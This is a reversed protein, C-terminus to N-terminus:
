QGGNGDGDAHGANERGLHRRRGLLENGHEDVAGSRVGRAADRYGVPEAIIVGQDVLAIAADVADLDGELFALGLVVGLQADLAVLLQLVLTRGPGGQDVREAGADRVLQDGLRRHVLNRDQGHAVPAGRGGVAPDELPDEVERQRIPALGRGEDLVHAPLFAPPVFELADLDGMDVVVAGVALLGVRGELDQGLLVADLQGQQGDVVRALFLLRRPQLDAPELGFPDEHGAPADHVRDGDLLGRRDIVRHVMEDTVPPRPGVGVHNGGALAGDAVRGGGEMIGAGTILHVPVDDLIDVAAVRGLGLLVVDALHQIVAGQDVGHVADLGDAGGHALEAVLGHGAFLHAPTQLVQVDGLRAQLREAHFAEGLRDLHRAGVM